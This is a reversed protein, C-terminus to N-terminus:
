TELRSVQGQRVRFILLGAGDGNSIDIGKLYIPM